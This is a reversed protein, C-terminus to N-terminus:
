KKERPLPWKVLSFLRVRGYDILLGVAFISLAVFPICWWAHHVALSTERTLAVFHHSLMPHIHILYVAFTLPAVRVLVRRVTETRPSFNLCALFCALSACVTLPSTYYLGPFPFPVNYVENTYTDIQTIVGAVFSCGVYLLILWRTRLQVPHLKLYAGAMYMVLMWVANFGGWVSRNFYGFFCISVLVILLSDRREKQTLSLFAKNIYPFLFFAGAYATFYWYGNAFPIPFLKTILTMVGCRDGMAFALMYGALLYFVVQIWLRMFSRFRWQREIGLYGTILMFLNVGVYALANLSATGVCNVLYLPEDPALTYTWWLSVHIMCIFFMALIRAVDIGYQHEREVSM